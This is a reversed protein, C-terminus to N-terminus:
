KQKPLSSEILAKIENYQAETSDKVSLLEFIISEKAEVEETHLVFLYYDDNSIQNRLIDRLSAVEAATHIKSVKVILIPKPQNDINQIREFLLKIKENQPLKEFNEKSVNEM